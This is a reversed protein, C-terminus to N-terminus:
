VKGESPKLNLSWSMGGATTDWAILILRQLMREEMDLEAYIIEEKNFVPEVIYLSSPNVVSSGGAAIDFAGEPLLDQSLYMNASLVFTQTEFAYERIACDIDCLHLKDKSPNFRRKVATTREAVWYGPWIAAHIEEGKLALISKIPTMHNEYCVLGGIKVGDVEYVDIDAGDGLGWITREGHTPMLKRHKGVYGSSVFVITNYLTLSGPKDDLESVGLVVGIGYKGAVEIIPEIDDPLKVSNKQYEVMYDAWGQGTFGRWYPYGPIFTEPFVIIKSGKRGAKEVAKASKDICGEKNMFDPEIQAIAVKM